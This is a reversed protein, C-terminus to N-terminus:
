PAYAFLADRSLLLLCDVDEGSTDSVSSADAALTMFGRGVAGGTDRRLSGDDRWFMNRFLFLMGGSRRALLPSAPATFRQLSCGSRPVTDEGSVLGLFHSDCGLM